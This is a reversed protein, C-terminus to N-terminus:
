PIPSTKKFAEAAAADHKPHIPRPAIKRWNHRHLLAYVVSQKVSRGLTAEYARHIQGIELIGGIKAKEFFPALFEEEEKLTFNAHYRGGTKKLALSEEGYKLYAAQIVRVTRANYGTIEAIQNGTYNYRARFYICQLRKIESADRAKKLLLSMREATGEPMPQAPRM